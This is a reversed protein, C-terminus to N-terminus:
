RDDRFLLREDQVSPSFAVTRPGDCPRTTSPRRSAAM